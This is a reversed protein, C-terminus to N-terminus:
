EDWAGATITKKDGLYNTYSFTVTGDKNDVYSWEGFASGNNFSYHKFDFYFNSSSYEAIMNNYYWNNSNGGKFVIAVPHPIYSVIIRFPNGGSYHRWAESAKWEPNLKDWTWKSVEETSLYCRVGEKKYIIVFSEYPKWDDNPDLDYGLGGYKLTEELDIGHDPPPPVEIEVRPTIKLGDATCTKVKKGNKYLTVESMGATSTKVVKLNDTKAVEYSETKKGKELFDYFRKEQAFAGMYTFLIALLFIKKM